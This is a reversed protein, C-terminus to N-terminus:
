KPPETVVVVAGSHVGMAEVEGEVAPRVRGRAMSRGLADSDETGMGWWVRRLRRGQRRHEDASLLGRRRLGAPHNPRRRFACRPRHACLRRRASSSILDSSPLIWGRNAHDSPTRSRASCCGRRMRTTACENTWRERTETRGGCGTTAGEDAGAGQHGPWRRLAVEIGRDRYTRRGFRAVEALDPHSLYVLVGVQRHRENWGGVKVGDDVGEPVVLQRNRSAQSSWGRVWPNWSGQQRYSCSYGAVAERAGEPWGLNIDNDVSSVGEEVANDHRCNPERLERPPKPKPCFIENQNHERCSSYLPFRHLDVLRPPM